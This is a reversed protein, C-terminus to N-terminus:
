IIKWFDYSSTSRGDIYSNAKRMSENAISIIWIKIKKVVYAIIYRLIHKNKLKKNHLM